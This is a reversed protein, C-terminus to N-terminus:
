GLNFYIDGEVNRHERAEKLLDDFKGPHDRCVSELDSYSILAMATDGFTFHGEEACCVTFAEGEAMESLDVFRANRIPAM